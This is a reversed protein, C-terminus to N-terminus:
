KSGYKSYKENIKEIKENMQKKWRNSVIKLKKM